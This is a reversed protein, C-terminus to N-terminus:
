NNQLPWYFSEQNSSIFIFFFLCCNIAGLFYMPFPWVLIAPVLYFFFTTLFPIYMKDAKIIKLIVVIELNFYLLLFLLAYCAKTIYTKLIFVPDSRVMNIYEKKIITEYKEPIQYNAFKLSSDIQTAKNFSCSDLWILGYKNPIFSLGCYLSHWVVHRDNSMVEINPIHKKLWYDRASINYKLYLNPFMYSVSLISIFLVKVIIATRILLFLLVVFLFMGTGSHIRVINAFGALVGVACTLVGISLKSNEINKKKLFYICFPIFSTIFYAIIYVDLIFLCFTGLIIMYFHYKMRLAKNKILLHMGMSSLLYGLM